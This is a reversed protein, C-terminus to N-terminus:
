NLCAEIHLDWLYYHWIFATWFWFLGILYNVNSKWFGIWVCSGLGIEGTCIRKWSMANVRAWIICPGATGTCVLCRILWWAGAETERFRQIGDIKSYGKKNNNNWLNLLVASTRLVGAAIFSSGGREASRSVYLENTPDLVTENFSFFGWQQNDSCVREREWVSAIRHMHPACEGVCIM